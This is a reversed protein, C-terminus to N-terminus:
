DLNSDMMRVVEVCGLKMQLVVSALLLRRHRLARYHVKGKLNSGRPHYQGAEWQYLSSQLYAEGGKM